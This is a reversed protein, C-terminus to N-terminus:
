MLRAMIYCPHATSPSYLVDRKVLPAVSFHSFLVIHAPLSEKMIKENLHTGQGSFTHSNKGTLLTGLPRADEVTRDETFTALDLMLRDFTIPQSTCNKAFGCRTRPVRWPLLQGVQVYLCEERISNPAMDVPFSICIVVAM